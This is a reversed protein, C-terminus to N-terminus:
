IQAGVNVTRRGDDASMVLSYGLSWQEFCDLCFWLDAAHEPPLDGPDPVRVIETVFDPDSELCLCYEHEM